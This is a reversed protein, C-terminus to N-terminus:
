ATATISADGQLRALGTRWHSKIFTQLGLVAGPWCSLRDGALWRRSLLDLLAAWQLTFFAKWLWAGDVWTTGLPLQTNWDAPGDVRLYRKMVGNSAHLFLAHQMWFRPNLELVYPSGEYVIFELEFPGEFDLGGLIAKAKDVLSWDDAVARVVPSCSPGSKYRVLSETVALLNRQPQVDDFYGCVSLLRAKEHAMWRELHFLSEDWGGSRIRARAREIDDANECRWGRPMKEEGNWSCRAKVMCSFGIVGAMALEAHPVSSGAGLLGDVWQLFAFKDDLLEAPFSRPQFEATHNVRYASKMSREETFALWESRAGNAQPMPYLPRRDATYVEVGLRGALERLSWANVGSTAVSLVRQSSM